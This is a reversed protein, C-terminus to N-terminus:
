GFSLYILFGLFLRICFVIISISLGYLVPNKIRKNKNFIKDKIIYRTVYFNFLIPVAFAGAPLYMVFIEPSQLEIRIQEFISHPLLFIYLGVRAKKWIKGKLLILDELRKLEKLEVEREEEKALLNYKVEDEGKLKFLEEQKEKKKADEKEKKSELFVNNKKNSKTVLFYMFIGFILIIAIVIVQEIGM